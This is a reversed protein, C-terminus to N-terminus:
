QLITESDNLLYQAIIVISHAKKCWPHTCTRIYTHIYTHIYKHTYTHIRYIYLIAIIYTHVFGLQQQPSQLSLIYCGFGCCQQISTSTLQWLVEHITWWAIYHSVKLVALTGGICKDKCTTASCSCTIMKCCWLEM